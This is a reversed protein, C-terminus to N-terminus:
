DRNGPTPEKRRKTNWFELQRVPYGLGSMGVGILRVAQGTRRVTKLLRIATEAIELRTM